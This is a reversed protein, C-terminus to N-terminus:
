HLRLFTQPSSNAWWCEASLLIHNHLNTVKPCSFSTSPVRSCLPWWVLLPALDGQLFGAESLLFPLVQLCFSLNGLSGWEVPQADMRASGYVFPTELSSFFHMHEIMNHVIRLAWTETDSLIPSQSIYLEKCSLFYLFSAKCRMSYFVSSYGQSYKM